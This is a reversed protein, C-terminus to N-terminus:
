REVNHLDELLKIGKKRQAHTLAMKKSIRKKDEATNAKDHKEALRKERKRLKKLIKKIDKIRKKRKGDETNLLIEAQELLKKLKM